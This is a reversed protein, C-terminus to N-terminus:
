ELNEIEEISQSIIENPLQAMKLKKVLEIAIAKKEEALAKREEEVEKKEEALAKEKEEFSNMRTNQDLLFKQQSEYYQRELPELKMINLKANAIRIEKIAALEDPLTTETYYHAKNLFSIWRELTTQVNDTEQYLKDLEVFYLDLYDLDKHTQNSERDKLTYCRHYRDDKFFTFDMLSIVICKHLDSYGQRKMKDNEEDEVLTDLQNGFMKAWYYLARKGYFDTGKIQMEIDYLVGNEDEAKIDLISLKGEAYDALNYPNKLVLTAIQQTSPLIANIM